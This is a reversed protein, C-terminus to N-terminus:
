NEGKEGKEDSLNANKIGGKYIEKGLIDKRGFYYLEKFNNGEIKIIFDIKSLDRSEYKSETATQSKPNPM